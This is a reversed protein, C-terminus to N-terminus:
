VMVVHMRRGVYSTYSYFELAIFMMNPLTYAENLTNLLFTVTAHM